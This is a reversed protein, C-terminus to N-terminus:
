FQEAWIAKNQQNVPQVGSAKNHPNSGDYTSDYGVHVKAALILNPSSM